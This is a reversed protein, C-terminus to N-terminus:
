RFLCRFGHLHDFSCSFSLRVLFNCILLEIVLPLFCCCRNKKSEYECMYVSIKIPVGWYFTIQLLHPIKLIFTIAILLGWIYFSPYNRGFLSYCGCCMLSWQNSLLGERNKQSKPLTRLKVQDVTIYITHDFLFYQVLCFYCSLIKWWSSARKKKGVMKWHTRKKRWERLITRDQHLIKCFVRNVPSPWCVFHILCHSSFCSPM